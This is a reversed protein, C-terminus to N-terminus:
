NTDNILAIDYRIDFYQDRMLSMVRITIQTLSVALEQTNVDARRAYAIDNIDTKCTLALVFGIRVLRLGDFQHHGRRRANRECPM